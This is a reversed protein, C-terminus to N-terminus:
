LLGAENRSTTDDDTSWIKISKDSLGTILRLGLMDYASTYITCTDDASAPKPPVTSLKQGSEYDYFSMRGDGYGAFLENSAPNISLTNIVPSMTETGTEGFESLLEGGPLLWERISGTSDCSAMTMERPHMVLLRVSKRHQTLTLHTKQKRLEWLRVTGDMSSSCIQPDGIQSVISLVDGKHGTLVMVQTRSRIDWVRIAADRGGTFLLDLEPHLAMAYVGGVHGHYNRIQCGSPSNTRELDWCRVTKDESGSFLYPYRKSVQLARVSIIHGSLSAKLSGLVLDWIKIKSDGGGSVFWGNTVPDVALSRVWGDHAGLLVKRLSSSPQPLEKKQQIEDSTDLKVLETSEKLEPVPEVKDQAGRLLYELKTNSYVAELLVDSASFLNDLSILKSYHVGSM